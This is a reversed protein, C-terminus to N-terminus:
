TIINRRTSPSRPRCSRRSRPEAAGVPGPGRPEVPGVPGPLVESRRIPLRSITKFPPPAYSVARHRWRKNNNVHLITSGKFGIWLNKEINQREAFLSDWTPDLRPLNSTETCWFDYFHHRSVPCSFWMLQKTEMAVVSSVRRPRWRDGVATVRPASCHEAPSADSKKESEGTCSPHGRSRRTVSFVSRRM